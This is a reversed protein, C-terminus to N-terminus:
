LDNFCSINTPAHKSGVEEQMCLLKTKKQHYEPHYSDNANSRGGAEGSVGNSSYFSSSSAGSNGGKAGVMSDHAVNIANDAASVVAEDFFKGSYVERPEIQKSGTVRCLEDMLQLTPNLYKSNKLITAYGTFPGLPGAADRHPIATIGVTNQRNTGYIKSEASPRSSSCLYDSKFPKSDHPRDSLSNREGFQGERRNHTQSVSSLSLSLGRTNSGDGVTLHEKISKNALDQGNQNRFVEVPRNVWGAGDCSRGQTVQYDNYSPLLVLESSDKGGYRVMDQGQPGVGASTVVEHLTNQYNYPSPSAVFSSQLMTDHNYSYCSSQKMYFSPSSINNVKFSGRGEGGSFLPNSSSESISIPNNNRHYNNVNWDCNQHSGLSKWNSCNHPDGAKAASLNLNSSIPHSLNAVAVNDASVLSENRSVYNVMDSSFCTPDYSMAGYKITRILDPHVSSQDLGSTYHEELNGSNQVRLKNRRSQQAIHSDGLSFNNM